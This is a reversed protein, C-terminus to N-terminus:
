RDIYLMILHSHQNMTSLWISEIYKQLVVIITNFSTSHIYTCTRIYAM